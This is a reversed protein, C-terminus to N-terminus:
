LVGEPGAPGARARSDLRVVGVPAPVRVVVTVAVEAIAGRLECASLRGGSAAAVIRARRCADTSGEAARSAAALAALDAAAYARHRAVRVGGAMMVVVAVFWILGMFALVLVTGAGRDGAGRGEGARQVRASYAENRPLGRVTWAALVGKGFACPGRLGLRRCGVSWRVRM